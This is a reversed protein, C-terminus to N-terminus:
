DIQTAMKAWFADPDEISQRYFTEYNEATIHAKGTIEAPPPFRDM